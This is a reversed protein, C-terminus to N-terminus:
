VVAIFAAQARRATHASANDYLLHPKCSVPRVQASVLRVFHCYDDANTTRTGFYYVPGTLCNGIAGYVTVCWRKTDVAHMNIKDPLSWSKAKSM